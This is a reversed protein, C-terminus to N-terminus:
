GAKGAVSGIAKEYISIYDFFYFALLVGYKARKIM